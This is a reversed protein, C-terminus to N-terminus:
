TERHCRWSNRLRWMVGDRARRPASCPLPNPTYRQTTSRVRPPQVLEAPEPHAVFAKSIDM